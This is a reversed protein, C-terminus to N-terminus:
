PLLPEYVPQVGSEVVSWFKDDDFADCWIFKYTAAYDLPWVLLPWLFAISLNRGYLAM